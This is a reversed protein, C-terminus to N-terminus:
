VPWSSGLEVAVGDSGLFRRGDEQLTYEPQAAAGSEDDLSLVLEYLRGVQSDANQLLSGDEASTLDAIDARVSFHVDIDAFYRQIYSGDALELGESEQGATRIANVIPMYYVATLRAPDIFGASSQAPPDELWACWDDGDFYAVHVYAASAPHGRIHPMSVVQKKATVLLSDPFSDSRGKAEVGIAVSRGRFGIFDPRTRKRPKGQFALYNDYHVFRGVRFFDHAFLKAQAQGLFFSVAGKESPDLRAYGSSRQYYHRGAEISARMMASRWQIELAPGTPLRPGFPTTGITAAAWVLRAMRVSHDGDAPALMGNPLAGRFSRLAYYIDTMVVLLCQRWGGRRRSGEKPANKLM